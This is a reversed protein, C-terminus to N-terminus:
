TKRRGALWRLPRTLRWSLSRQLTEIYTEAQRLRDLDHRGRHDVDAFRHELDALKARLDERESRLSALEPLLDEREGRLAALEAHLKPAETADKMVGTMWTNRRTYVDFFRDEENELAEMYGRYPLKPPEQDVQIQEALLDLAHEVDLLRALRDRHVMLMEAAYDPLSFLSYLAALKALKEDSLAAAKDRYARSGLDRLYIADGQVPRGQVNMSPHADLYPSPLAAAAYSRVSLGYLEFGKERMLRDVNHFTNDNADHSGYFCVELAAGLLSPRDLLGTASRLIEYDPGDVDIKLFDADDFGAGKAYAPLSITRGPTKDAVAAAAEAETPEWIEFTRAYDLDYGHVPFPLWDQALVVDRYYDDVSLPTQGAARAARIAQTREYSLRKDVWTHWYAKPGIREKLPHGDPLGVFGAEYRVNPNAEAANLREVETTEADFGIAALKDGFTRWGSPLGGACGVDILKFSESALSQGVLRAFASDPRMGEIGSGAESLQYEGM